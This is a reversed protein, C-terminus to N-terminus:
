VNGKWLSRGFQDIRRFSTERWNLYSELNQEESNHKM